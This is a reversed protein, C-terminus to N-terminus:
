VNRFSTELNSFMMRLFLALFNLFYRVVFRWVLFAIAANACVSFDLDSEDREYDLFYFINAAFGAM